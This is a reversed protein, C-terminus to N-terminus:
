KIARVALDISGHATLVLVPVDRDLAKFAKLLQIANGDPLSYDILAIDLRTSRFVERAADCTGAESVQYGVAELYERVGRRVADDDDVVLVHVPSASSGPKM